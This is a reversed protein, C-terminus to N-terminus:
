AGRAHWADLLERERERSMGSRRNARQEEPRGRDWELLDVCTEALPRFTLGADLAREISIFMLPDGPIWSPLDAWPRVENAELFDEDVWTFRVPESTIARIGYLMEAMSMRSAPGTANFDGTTGNEALRVIFESLDRQDIIQNAHRPDGPALVEGGEVIRFPWYSFRDSRDRPGVILGPRV